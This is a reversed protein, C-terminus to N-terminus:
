GNFEKESIVRYASESEIYELIVVKEGKLYQQDGTTRVKLVLGAGGDELNVEGFNNDVKSTKVTAVQGIIKKITSQEVQKFMPKLPKILLGTLLAASILSLLFIVINIAFGIVSNIMLAQSFHVLFYCIFWSILALISIIITVPVGTLGFKLMLGALADVNNIAVKDPSNLETETLDFDLVDIEILGLMAVAWYFVVVLLLITFVITPFSAINQYFPDMKDSMLLVFM